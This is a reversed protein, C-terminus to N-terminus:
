IIEREKFFGKGKNGVSQNGVKINVVEWLEKGLGIAVVGSPGPWASSRLGRAWVMSVSNGKVTM